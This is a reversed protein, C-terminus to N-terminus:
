LKRGCAIFYRAAEMVVVDDLRASFYSEYWGPQKTVALLAGGPRLYRLATDVFHQAIRDNAFYPPNALAVDVETPLSLQGDANHLCHVNTLGNLQAGLQTCEIARANSDVAYVRGETQFAVAFSVPGAGCGMELVQDAPGIEAANLLQRAGPDLRRHSFVGPRSVVQIMRGQADRFPFQCTFDRVKKLPATKRAWYVCGSTGRLCTVKDFMERMQEHLWQDNPNDVSAVLQGGTTLRQHAQQMVDRTLEAEGQRLVPLAVLEFEEEPLNAACRVAVGPRCAREAATAAHQDLYWAVTHGSLQHELLADAVQARGPSVVLSRAQPSLGGGWHSLSELLLRESPLPPLIPPEDFVQEATPEDIVNAMGRAFNASHLTFHILPSTERSNCFPFPWISCTFM